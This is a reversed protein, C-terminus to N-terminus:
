AVYIVCSKFCFIVLGVAKSLAAVSTCVATLQKLQTREATMGPIHLSLLKIYYVPYHKQFKSLIAPYFHIISIYAVAAGGVVAVTITMM